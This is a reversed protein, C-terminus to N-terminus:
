MLLGLDFTALDDSLSRASKAVEAADAPHFLLTRCLDVPGVLLGLLTLAFAAGVFSGLIPSTLITTFFHYM